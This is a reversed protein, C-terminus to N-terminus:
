RWCDESLTARKEESRNERKEGGAEGDEEGGAWGGEAFSPLSAMKSLGLQTTERCIKNGAKLIGLPNILDKYKGLSFCIARKTHGSQEGGVGM